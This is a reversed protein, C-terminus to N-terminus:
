RSNCSKMQSKGELHPFINRAVVAAGIVDSWPFGRAVAFMATDYVFEQHFCQREDCFEMWQFHSRLRQVGADRQCVPNM